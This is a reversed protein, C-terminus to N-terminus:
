QVRQWTMFLIVVGIIPMVWSTKMGEQQVTTCVLPYQMSDLPIPM